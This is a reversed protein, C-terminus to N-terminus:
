VTADSVEEGKLEQACSKCMRGSSADNVTQEIPFWEGCWDCRALGDIKACDEHLLKNGFKVAENEAVLEFCSDCVVAPEWDDPLMLEERCDSM